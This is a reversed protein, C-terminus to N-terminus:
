NRLCAQSGDIFITFQVLSYAVSSGFFTLVPILSDQHKVKTLQKLKRFLQTEKSPRIQKLCLITQIRRLKDKNWQINQSMGKNVPLCLACCVRPAKAM